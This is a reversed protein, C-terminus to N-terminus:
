RKRNNHKAVYINKSAKNQVRNIRAREKANLRGDSWAVKKMGRIKEQEKHLRKVEGRTLNESAIGQGIRDQQNGQRKAIKGASATGVIGMFGFSFAALVTVMKETIKKNKLVNSM